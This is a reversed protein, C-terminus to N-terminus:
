GGGRQFAIDFRRLFEARAAPPVAEFAIVVRARPMEVLGGFSFGAIKEFTIRVAGADLPLDVPVGSSAQAAAAEGAFQRISNAFEGASLTMTKEIFVTEAPTASAPDETAM